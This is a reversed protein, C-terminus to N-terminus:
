NARFLKYTKSTPLTFIFKSGSGVRSEVNLEGGNREVLEKTLILGLKASTKDDTTKYEKGTAFLQRLSEPKIGIGTDEVVIELSNDLNQAYLKIRGGEPTYTIANTILNRLVNQVNDKDAYVQNTDKKTIQSYISIKKQQALHYHSAMVEDVIDSVFYNNPEFKAGQKQIRSWELLNQVLHHGNEAAQSIITLYEIQEEETLTGMKEQLAM